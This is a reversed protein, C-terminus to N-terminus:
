LRILVDRASKGEGLIEDLPDSYLPSITAIFRGPNLPGNGSAPMPFRPSCRSLQSLKGLGFCEPHYFGPMDGPCFVFGGQGIPLITTTNGVWCRSVPCRSVVM